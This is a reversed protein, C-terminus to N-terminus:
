ADRELLQKVMGKVDHMEALMSTVDDKVGKLDRKIEQLEAQVQALAHSQCADPARLEPEPEPEPEPELQKVFELELKADPEPEPQEPQEPEPEKMGTAPSSLMAKLASPVQKVAKVGPGLMEHSFDKVWTNFNGTPTGELELDLTRRDMQMRETMNNTLMDSYYPNTLPPSVKALHRRWCDVIEDKNDRLVQLADWCLDCFAPWEGTAKLMAVLLDPIPFLGTDLTPSEELWGFDINAFHTAESLVM